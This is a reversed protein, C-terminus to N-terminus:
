PTARAGYGRREFRLDGGAYHGLEHAAVFGLEDRDFTAFLPLGILLFRQRQHQGAAANVALDLYVADPVPEGSAAAVEDLWAHLEPQEDRTLEPGPPEFDGRTAFMSRLIALGAGILAFTLFINGRDAVAWVAIPGGILVAAMLVSLVYFAVTLAIALLVRSRM